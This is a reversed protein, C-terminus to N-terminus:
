TPREGHLWELCYFLLSLLSFCALEQSLTYWYVIETMTTPKGALFKLSTILLPSPSLIILHQFNRINCKSTSPQVFHFCEKTLHWDLERYPMYTPTFRLKCDLLHHHYFYEQGKSHGNSDCNEWYTEDLYKMFLTALLEGAIPCSDSKSCVTSQRTCTLVGLPWCMLVLISIKHSCKFNELILLHELELFVGAYSRGACRKLGKQSRSFFGFGNWCRSVLLLSVAIVSVFNNAQINYVNILLSNIVSLCFMMYLVYRVVLRVDEIIRVWNWLLCKDDVDFSDLLYGCNDVVTDIMSTSLGFVIDLCAYVPRGKCPKQACQLVRTRVEKLRLRLQHYKIEIVKWVPEVEEDYEEDGTSMGYLGSQLPYKDTCVCTKTCIDCSNHKTGGKVSTNLSGIFHELVEEIASPKQNATSNGVHHILCGPYFYLIANSEIGDRKARGSGQFYGDIDATTRYHIVTQMDVHVEMGFASCLEVTAMPNWSQNWLWWKRMQLGQM